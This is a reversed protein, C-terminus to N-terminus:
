AAMAHVEEPVRMQLATHPRCNNYLYIAEEVARRAQLKTKLEKGLGYEMKLIGNMREALANEACHNVETMSIPMQHAQLKEVYAHSCYQTGRDSHHMPRARPPLSAIAMDLAQLCGEADLGDSCHYGVIKRSVVDTTLSLYLFGEETRLYTLDSVMAQNPETVKLEKLQNRFIPLVHRSDTTSPFQSRVAPVLMEHGRLVEFLRDRGIQVGAEGLAGKLVVRLKRVGLRPQRQREQKVLEVVLKEAVEQRQRKRRRQYYNQRSMGM